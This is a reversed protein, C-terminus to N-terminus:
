RSKGARGRQRWNPPALFLTALVALGFLCYCVTFVWEPADFFMLRHVWRAVFSGAQAGGGSKIRLEYEWTTLPCEVNCLAQVAVVGIMLFHIVRFYRNRVWKWRLVIGLLILLMGVVVFAVYAFHIAAIVDALLHYFTPM